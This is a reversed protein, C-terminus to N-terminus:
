DPLTGQRNGGGGNLLWIDRDIRQMTAFVQAEDDGALRLPEAGDTHATFRLPEVASVFPLAAYQSADGAVELAVLRPKGDADGHRRISGTFAQAVEYGLSTGYRQTPSLHARLYEAGGHYPLGVRQDYQAVFYAATRSLWPQAQEFASPRVEEIFGGGRDFYAARLVAGSRALSTEVQKWDAGDRVMLMPVPAQATRTEPPSARLAALRVSYLWFDDDELSVPVFGFGAHNDSMVTSDSMAVRDLVRGDADRIVVYFRGTQATLAPPSCSIMPPPPPAGRGPVIPLLAAEREENYPFPTVVGARSTFHMLDATLMRDADPSLTAGHGFVTFRDASNGKLRAITRLTVIGTAPADQARVGDDEVLVLDVTHAADVMVQALYEGSSHGVPEPQQIYSCAFAAQPATALACAAAALLVNKRMM